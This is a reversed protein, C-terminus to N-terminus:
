KKGVNVADFYTLLVAHYGYWTVFDVLRYYILVTALGFSAVAIIVGQTPDLLAWLRQLITVYGPIAYGEVRSKQVIKAVLTVGLATGIVVWVQELTFLVKGDVPSKVVLYGILVLAVFVLSLIVKRSFIIGLITGITNTNKM